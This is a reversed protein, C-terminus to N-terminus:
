TKNLDFWTLTLAWLAGAKYGQIDLTQNEYVVRIFVPQNVKYEFLYPPYQIQYGDETIFYAKADSPLSSLKLTNSNM